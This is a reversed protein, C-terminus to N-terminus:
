QPREQSGERIVLIDATAGPKVLFSSLAVAIVGRVYFEQEVIRIAESSTNTLEYRDGVLQRDFYSAVKVFRTGEWLALEQRVDRKEIASCPPTEGSEDPVMAALLAKIAANHEHNGATRETDRQPKTGAPEHIVIDEQPIDVPQLVLSYTKGSAPIVRINIPKDLRTPRLFVQGREIDKELTFEGDNGVISAIRGKEVALRTQEKASVKVFSNVGEIPEVIQLAHAPLACAVAIACLTPKVWSFGAIM